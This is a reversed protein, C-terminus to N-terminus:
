EGEAIEALQDAVQGWGTEFGMAEHQKCAEETWHRARATYRTGAGEREFTTIAVMFPGQPVWGPALADTTVLRENPVVELFVGEMPMEEGEPSKMVIFSRGGPRLDFEATTVQYPRPAFWETTRETWIRYVLEPPAAIFRTVSLEFM